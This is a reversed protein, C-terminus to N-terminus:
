ESMHEVEECKDQLEIVTHKLLQVKIDKLSGNWKGGCDGKFCAQQARLQKKTEKESCFDGPWKIYNKLSDVM